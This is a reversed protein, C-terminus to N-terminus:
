YAKKVKAIAVTRFDETTKNFPEVMALLDRDSQVLRAYESNFHKTKARSFEQVIAREIMEEETKVSKSAQSLVEALSM